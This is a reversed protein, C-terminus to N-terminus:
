GNVFWKRIVQMYYYMEFFIALMKKFFKFFKQVLNRFRAMFQGFIVKWNEALISCNLADVGFLVRMFPAIYPFKLCKLSKM